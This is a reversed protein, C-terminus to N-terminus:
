PRPSGPSGTRLGALLLGVLGRADYGEDEAGVCRDGVGRMLELGGVDDRIEGAAAAAALLEDCV